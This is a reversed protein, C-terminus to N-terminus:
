IDKEVKSKLEEVLDEVENESLNVGRKKLTDKVKNKTSELTDALKTRTDEGKEPAFLLGIAAGVIIGGVVGALFSGTNKM